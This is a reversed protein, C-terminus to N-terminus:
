GSPIVLSFHRSLILHIEVSVVSLIDVQNIQYLIPVLLPIKYFCKMDHPLVEQNSLFGNDRWPLNQEMCTSLTCNYEYIDTESRITTCFFGLPIQLWVSYSRHCDLQECYPWLLIYRRPHLATHYPLLKSRNRLLMNGGDEPNITSTCEESM